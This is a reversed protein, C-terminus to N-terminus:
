TPKWTGRGGSDCSPRQTGAHSSEADHSPRQTGMSSDLTHTGVPSDLTHTGVPSDLTHTGVPSDLTHTGVLSDLTHTGVPSDLTHTGVPSDLTHTGMLSDLTHTGVPSDLTHTGVPSDLNVARTIGTGVKAEGGDEVSSAGGGADIPASSGWDGTWCNGIRSSSGSLGNQDQYNSPRSLPSYKLGQLASLRTESLCIVYCDKQLTM